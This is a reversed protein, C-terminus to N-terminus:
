ALGPTHAADNTSGPVDKTNVYDKYAVPRIDKPLRTWIAMGGSQNGRAILAHETCGILVFTPPTEDENTYDDPSKGKFGPLFQTMRNGFLYVDQPMVVLRRQKSNYYHKHLLSIWITQENRGVGNGFNDKDIVAFSFPLFKPPKHFSFAHSSGTSLQLKWSGQAIDWLAQQSQPDSYTKYSNHEMFHVANFLEDNPEGSIACENIIRCAEEYETVATASLFLKPQNQRRSTAPYVFSTTENALFIAVAISLALLRTDNM